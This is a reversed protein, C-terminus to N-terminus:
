LFKSEDRKFNNPHTQQSHTQETMWDEISNMMMMMMSNLFKHTNTNTDREKNKIGRHGLIM